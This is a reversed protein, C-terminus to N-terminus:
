LLLLLLGRRLRSVVPGLTLARLTLTDGQTLLLLRLPLGLTLLSRGRTLLLDLCLPLRHTLGGRLACLLLLHPLLRRRRLCARVDLACLRPWLRLSLPWLRHSLLPRRRLLLVRPAPL